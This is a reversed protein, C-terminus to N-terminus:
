TFEDIWIGTWIHDATDKSAQHKSKKAAAFLHAQFQELLHFLTIDLVAAFGLLELWSGLVGLMSAKQQAEFM